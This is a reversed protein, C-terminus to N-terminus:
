LLMIILPMTFISLVTSIFIGKSALTEDGGYEMSLMAANTAVPMATTIVAAGLILYNDVFPSFCVLIILPCIVLKIFAVIYVRFDNFVEKIPIAGLSAGVVLMAGPVTISGLLSATEVLPAPYSWPLLYLILALIAALLSPNLLVQRGIKLKGGPSLMAVGVSFILLNFPINFLAAYFIAEQGYVASIIPFGIFAVNGFIAMFSYTGATGQPAKILKPTVWAVVGLIAYSLFAIALLIALDPGTMKDEIEMVSALILAPLTVNVILKSLLKAGDRNLLSAKNAIYGIALILFLAIMEGIVAAINM